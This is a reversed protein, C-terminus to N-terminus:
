ALEGGGRPDGAASPQAAEVRNRGHAKAADLAREAKRILAEPDVADEPLCAVGLSGTVVGIDPM